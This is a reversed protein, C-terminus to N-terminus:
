TAQSDPAQQAAVMGRRRNHIACGACMYFARRDRDSWMLYSARKGCTLGPQFLHAEECNSSVWDTSATGAEERTMAPFRPVMTRLTPEAERLPTAPEQHNM